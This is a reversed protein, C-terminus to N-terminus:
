VRKSRCVLLMKTFTVIKDCRSKIEGLNTKETPYNSKFYKKLRLTLHTQQKSVKTLKQEISSLYTILNALKILSHSNMYLSKQQQLLEEISNSLQLQRKYKIRIRFQFEDSFQTKSDLRVHHQAFPFSGTNVM